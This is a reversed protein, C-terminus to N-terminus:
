PILVGPESHCPVFGTSSECVPPQPQCYRYKRLLANGDSFTCQRRNISVDAGYGYGVHMLIKEGPASDRSHRTYMPLGNLATRHLYGVMLHEELVIGTTQPYSRLPLQACTRQPDGLHAWAEEATTASPSVSAPPVMELSSTKLSTLLAQIAPRGLPLSISASWSGIVRKPYRSASRSPHTPKYGGSEM